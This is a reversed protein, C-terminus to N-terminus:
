FSLQNWKFPYREKIYRLFSRGIETIQYAPETQTGAGQIFKQSTLFGLYRVLDQDGVGALRVHREYFPVIDAQAKINDAVALFEIIEVQTGFIVNFARECHLHFNMLVYEAVTQGPKLIAFDIARQIAAEDPEPMLNVINPDYFRDSAPATNSATLPPPTAIGAESVGDGPLDIVPPNAIAQNQSQDIAIKAGLVTVERVKGLLERIKSDFRVFCIIAILVVMPPWSFLVKLYELLLEWDVDCM